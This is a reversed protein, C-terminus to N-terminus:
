SAGGDGAPLRDINGARVQFSVAVVWPNTDWGYGRKANLDNWLDRYWDRPDPGDAMNSFPCGEAMADGRSIAQLRQVRVETVILTIRSAWRPMHISPRWGLGRPDDGPWDAMYGIEADGQESMRDISERVWLRDGPRYPLFGVHRKYGGKFGLM